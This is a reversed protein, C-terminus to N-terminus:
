RLAIVNYASKRVPRPAAPYPELFKRLFLTAALSKRRAALELRSRRSGSASGRRIEEAIWCRTSM